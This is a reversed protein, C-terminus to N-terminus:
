SEDSKLDVAHLDQVAVVRRGRTYYRPIRRALQTVLEYDITDLASALAAVSNVAGRDASIVDIEDGVRTEFGDPTGIVTQDMCVRGRVVWMRGGIVMLGRGSLGRRYGDAYGIPVLAVREPQRAVYTGGYSVADGAVLDSVKAVRSRVSLAPKLQSPLVMGPAPSLGYLAIGVRVMDHDFRRWRLTAASNSLHVIGPSIGAAALESLCEDFMIGQAVSFDHADNDADALHSYFGALRLEPMGMVSRCIAIASAPPAGFRNMGTDVKVHVLTAEDGGVSRVAHAVVNVFQPDSITLALSWRVATPAESSDIPGLVLIATQVGFRRLAVGEDVTAVALSTAGAAIAERAVMAAGHGYGDAKVVAM